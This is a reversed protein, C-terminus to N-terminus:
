VPLKARAKGRTLVAFGFRTGPVGLLRKFNLLWLSIEVPHGM